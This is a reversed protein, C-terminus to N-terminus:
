QRNNNLYKFVDTCCCRDNPYSVSVEIIFWQLPPWGNPFDRLRWSSTVIRVHPSSNDAYWQQHTYLCTGVFGGHQALQSTM